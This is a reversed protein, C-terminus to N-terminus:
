KGKCQLFFISLSPISSICSVFFRFSFCCIMHLAHVPHFHFSYHCILHPAFLTLFLSIFLSLSFFLFHSFIINRSYSLLTKPGFCHCCHITRISNEYLALMYLFIHIYSCCLAYPLHGLLSVLLFYSSLVYRGLIIIFSPLRFVHVVCSCICALFFFFVWSFFIFGAVAFFILAVSFSASCM